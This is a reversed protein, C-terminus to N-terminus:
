GLPSNVRPEAPRPRKQRFKNIFIRPLLHGPTLLAMERSKPQIIPSSLPHDERRRENREKADGRWLQTSKKIAKAGTHLKIKKLKKQQWLLILM